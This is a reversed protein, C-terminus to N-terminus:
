LVAGTFDADCLNRGALELGSLDCFAFVARAGGMRGSYLMEHRAMSASLDKQTLRAFSTRQIQPM